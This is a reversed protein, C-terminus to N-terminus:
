YRRTCSTERKTLRGHTDSRQEIKLTQFTITRRIIKEAVKFLKRLTKMALPYYLLLRTAASNLPILLPKADVKFQSARRVENEFAHPNYQRDVHGKRIM